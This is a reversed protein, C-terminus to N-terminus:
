LPIDVVDIYCLVLVGRVDPSPVNVVSPATARKGGGWGKFGYPAIFMVLTATLPTSYNFVFQGLNIVM